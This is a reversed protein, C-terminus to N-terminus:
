QGSGTIGDMHDLLLKTALISFEPLLVMASTIKMLRTDMPTLNCIEDSPDFDTDSVTAIYVGHAIAKLVLYMATLTLVTRISRGCRLVRLWSPDLIPMQSADKKLQMYELICLIFSILTIVWPIVEFVIFFIYRELNQYSKSNYISSLCLRKADFILVTNNDPTNPYFQSIKVPKEKFKFFVVLHCIIALNFITIILKIGGDAKMWKSIKEPIFFTACQEVILMMSYLGGIVQFVQYLPFCIKYVKQIDALTKWFEDYTGSRFLVHMWVKPSLTVVVMVLYMTDSLLLAKLILSSSSRLDKHFYLIYTVINFLIGIACIVPVAVGIADFTPSKEFLWKDISGNRRFYNVSKEYVFHRSAM